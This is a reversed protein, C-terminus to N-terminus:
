VDRNEPLEFKLDLRGLQESIEEIWVNRLVANDSRKLGFRRHWENHLSQAPGASTEIRAFWYQLSLEVQNKHAPIKVREKLTTLALDAHSCELPLCAAALERLPKFSAERFEKLMLEAITALLYTFVLMDDFSELPYLLANLRKDASSRSFGLFTDRSVRSDFCHGNIYRQSNFNLGSLIAYANKAMTMKESVMRSLDIRDQISPCRNIYPVFGAAGAMQSDAFQLIIGTALEKFRASSESWNEILAGGAIREIIEKDEDMLDTYLINITM